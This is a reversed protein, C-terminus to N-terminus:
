ARGNGRRRNISFGGNDNAEITYHTAPVQINTPVEDGVIYLNTWTVCAQGLIGQVEGAVLGDTHNFSMKGTNMDVYVTVRLKKAM